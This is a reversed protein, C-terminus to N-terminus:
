QACTVDSLHLAFTCYVLVDRVYISKRYVFVRKFCRGNLYASSGPWTSSLSNFSVTLKTKRGKTATLVLTFQLLSWSWISLVMICLAKNTNVKEDKSFSFLYENRHVKKFFISREHGRKKIKMKEKTCNTSNKKCIDPNSGRIEPTPLLREVLQAVVVARM